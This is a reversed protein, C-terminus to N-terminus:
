FGLDALVEAQTFSHALSPIAGKLAERAEAAEARSEALRREVYQKSVYGRTGEGCIPCLVRSFHEGAKATIGAPPEAPYQELHGWCASCAMDRVIRQAQIDTVTEPM